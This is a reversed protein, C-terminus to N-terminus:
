QDTPISVSDIEAEAETDTEAPIPELGFADHLFGRFM